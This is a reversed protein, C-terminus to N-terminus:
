RPSSIPSTTRPTPRPWSASPDAAEAGPALADQHRGIASLYVAVNNLTLALDAVYAAPDATALARYTDAAHQAPGLAAEHQGMGVLRSALDHLSTALDPLYAEPDGEALRHLAAVGPAGAMAAHRALHRRLYPSCRDPEGASQARALTILADALAQAAPRGAVAPSSEVLHEVFEQHYLRYLAEGCM